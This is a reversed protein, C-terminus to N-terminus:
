SSLMDHSCTWGCQVDLWLLYLRDLDSGGPSLYYSLLWLWLPMRYQLGTYTNHVGERLRGM